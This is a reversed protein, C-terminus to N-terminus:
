KKSNDNYFIINPNLNIYIIHYNKNKNIEKIIELENNSKIKGLYILENDWGFITKNQYYFDRLNMKEIEIEIFKYHKLLKKLEYSCKEVSKKHSFYFTNDIKQLFSDEKISCIEREITNDDINLYYYKTEDSYKQDTIYYNYQDRIELIVSKFAIVFEKDSFRTLSDFYFTCYPNNDENIFYKDHVTEVENLAINEKVLLIIKKLNFSNSNDKKYILFYFYKYSEKQFTGFNADYYNIINIINYRNVPIDIYDNIHSFNILYSLDGKYIIGISDESLINGFIFKSDDFEVFNEKLKIQQIISFSKSNFIYIELDTILLLMGDKSFINFNSIKSDLKISTEITENQINFIELLNEDKRIGVLRTKDELLLIKSYKVKIEKFKDFELTSIKILKENTFDNLNKNYKSDSLLFFLGSKIRDLFYNTFSKISVIDDKIKFEQFNFELVNKVNFYIPYNISNGSLIGNKYQELIFNTLSILKDNIDKYDKYLNELRQLQSKFSNIKKRIYVLNNNLNKKASEFKDDIIVLDDKSILYKKNEYVKHSKHYNFCKKCIIRKCNLCLYENENIKCFECNIKVKKENKNKEKKKYINNLLFENAKHNNKHCLCFSHLKIMDSINKAENLFEIGLLPINLCNNCLINKELLDDLVSGVEM